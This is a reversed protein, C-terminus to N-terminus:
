SFLIKKKKIKVNPTDLDEVDYIVCDLNIEWKKRFEESEDNEQNLTLLQQSTKLIPCIQIRIKNRGDTRFVHPAKKSFPLIKEMIEYENNIVIWGKTNFDTLIEEISISDILFYPIKFPEQDDLQNWMSIDIYYIQDDISHLNNSNPSEINDKFNEM